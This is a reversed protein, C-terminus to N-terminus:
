VACVHFRELAAAKWWIDTWSGGGGGGGFFTLLVLILASSKHVPQPWFTNLYIKSLVPGADRCM